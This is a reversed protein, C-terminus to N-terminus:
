SSLSASFCLIIAWEKILCFILNTCSLHFSLELEQGVMGMDLEFVLM